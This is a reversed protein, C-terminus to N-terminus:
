PELVSSKQVYGPMWITADRNFVVSVICHPTQQLGEIQNDKQHSSTATSRQKVAFHKMVHGDSTEVDRYDHLGAEGLM